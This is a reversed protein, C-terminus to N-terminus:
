KKFKEVVYKRNLKLNPTLMNNKVSFEEDTCSYESIRKSLELQKNVAEIAAAIEKNSVEKNRKVVIAKVKKLDDSYVISQKIYENKNIMKEIDAPNLKIGNKLTIVDVCRGRIFLFGDEDIYGIDGTELFGDKNINSGNESNLYGSSWFYESKVLVQQQSDFTIEYQPLIKGVSGFKCNNPYNVTLVGTENLGYSEFLDIDAEKYLILTKESIPATGTVLIRIKGGFINKFEGFIRKRCKEYMSNIGLKKYIQYTIYYLKRSITEGLKIKYLNAMNEFFYPVGQMITPKFMRLASMVLEPTTIAVNFGLLFASYIYLRSTFISLPLFCLNKDDKELEFFKVSSMITQEISEQRLAMAKPIGTTGSSFVITFNRKGNLIPIDTIEDEKDYFAVQELNEIDIQIDLNNMLDNDAFLIKVDFQNINNKVIEGSLTDPFAVLVYNGIFCAVDVVVWEYSNKGYVGVSQGQKIDRKRLFSIVSLVDKYFESFNKKINSKKSYFEIYNESNDKIKYALNSLEM